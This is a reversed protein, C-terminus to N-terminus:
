THLYLIPMWNETYTQEATWRNMWGDVNAVVRANLNMVGVIMKDLM